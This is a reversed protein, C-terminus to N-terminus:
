ILVIFILVIFILVIFILVIFEFVKKMVKMPILPRAVTDKMTTIIPRYRPFMEVEPVFVCVM